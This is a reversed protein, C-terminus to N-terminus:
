TLSSLNLLLFYYLLSRSLGYCLPMYPAFLSPPLLSPLGGGGGGGGRAGSPPGTSHNQMRGGDPGEPSLPDRPSRDSDQNSSGEALEKLCLWDGDVSVRFNCLYITDEASSSVGDM